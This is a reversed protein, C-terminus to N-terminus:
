SLKRAQVAIFFLAITSAVAIWIGTSPLGISDALWGIFLSGLAVSGLAVMGWLSMVRGRIIDPLDSQIESQFSVGLYTACFGICAASCLAIPWIGTIALIAACVTGLAGITINFGSLAPVRESTGMAKMLAAIMSGAGVAAGLQGLGTAGKTFTGDAIVPLIELIGRISLSFLASTTLILRLYKHAWIYGLGEILAARISQYEKPTALSRPKLTAYIILNPIYLLLTVILAAMVSFYEIILGAFFPSIVRATNFNLAALASVSGIQDREVLRPGMTLRMPHHASTVIGICIAVVLLFIQSILGFELAFVIALACTMMGINTGYAARIINYRDMLAGFVPGSIMTPLMTLAAILGVFTASGSVDWALWTLVVRLIWMGNVAAASGALYRRYGQSQLASLNM